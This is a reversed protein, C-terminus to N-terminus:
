QRTTIDYECIFALISMPLCTAEEGEKERGQYNGTVGHAASLPEVRNKSLIGRCREKWDKAIKSYLCGKSMFACEREM